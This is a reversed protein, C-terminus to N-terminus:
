PLDSAASVQGLLTRGAHTTHLSAFPSGSLAATDPPFSWLPHKFAVDLEVELARQITPSRSPNLHTLVEGGRRKASRRSSNYSPRTFATDRCMDPLSYCLATLDFLDKIM